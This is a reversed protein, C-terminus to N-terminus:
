KLENGLDKMTWGDDGYHLIKGAVFNPSEPCQRYGGRIGYEMEVQLMQMQM